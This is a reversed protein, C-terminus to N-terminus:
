RSRWRRLVPSRAGPRTLAFQYAMANLTAPSKPPRAILRDAAPDNVKVDCAVTVAFAPKTTQMTLQWFTTVPLPLVEFTVTEPPPFVHSFAPSNVPAAANVKFPM